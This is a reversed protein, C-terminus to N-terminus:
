IYNWNWSEMRDSRSTYKIRFKNGDKVVPSFLEPRSSDRFDQDLPMTMRRFISGPLGEVGQLLLKRVKHALNQSGHPSTSRPPM